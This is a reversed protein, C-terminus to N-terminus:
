FALSYTGAFDGAYIEVQQISLVLDRDVEHKIENSCTSSM